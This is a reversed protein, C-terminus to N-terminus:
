IRGQLNMKDTQLFGLRGTTADEVAQSTPLSSM